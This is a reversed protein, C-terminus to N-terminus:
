VAVIDDLLLTVQARRMKAITTVSGSPPRIEAVDDIMFNVALM